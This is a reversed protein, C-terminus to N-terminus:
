LKSFRLEESLSKLQFLEVNASINESRLLLKANNQMHWTSFVFIKNFKDHTIRGDRNVDFRASVDWVCFITHLLVCLCIFMIKNKYSDSVWGTAFSLSSGGRSFTSNGSSAKWMTVCSWHSFSTIQFPSSDRVLTSCDAARFPALAPHIGLGVLRVATCYILWRLTYM